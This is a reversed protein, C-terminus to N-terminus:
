EFWTFIKFDAEKGAKWKAYHDESVEKIAAGNHYELPKDDAKTGVLSLDTCHQTHVFGDGTFTSSLTQCQEDASVEHAMAVGILIMMALLTRHM